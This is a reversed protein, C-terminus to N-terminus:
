KSAEMCAEAVARTAEPRALARAACAMALLQERDLGALRRALTEATLENQPLLIAAGRQALYGANVTQHDDVAFPYPVLISGVGAAALEAVTLAGARCIVLDCRAYETAMDDLFPRVEAAVGAQRYLARVSEFHKAGSQHVVVPRAAEPLRGLAQPLAENLAQAGLSGGVVLLRLPGGRGAFRTEPAPLAAIEARVPNGVVEGRRLAGPFGVLVRRALRALVRNALGAVSNQEHIVLPRRLLATMLGGPLAVFGGMGLVVDPRQRRLAAASQLCAVLLSGPLLLWRLLGSKRVGAFKIWEVAFGRPPVLKAEMGTRTGLWSVRWGRGDLYDAVALAPFIHGGTGGAMILIRRDASDERRNM